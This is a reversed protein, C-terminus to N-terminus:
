YNNVQEANTVTPSIVPNPHFSGGQTIRLFLRVIM